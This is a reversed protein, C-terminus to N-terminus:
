AILHVADAPFRQHIGEPVGPRTIDVQVQLIGGLLQSNKDLVITAPDVGLNQLGAAVPVPPKCAHPLSGLPDSPFEPNQAASPASCFHLKTQRTINSPFAM